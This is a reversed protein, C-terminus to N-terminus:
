EGAGINRFASWDPIPRSLLWSSAVALIPLALVAGAIELTPVALPSGRSAFIGWIPLLGAPVALIGALLALVGARAAAIRRRLRPDAGLALLSRQEPRSEAEGLAIAIGTVSVAFLLVLAIIVMRFGAGPREPASLTAAMTDPYIAAVQRVRELDVETVPHDFQLVYSTAGYNLDDSSPVLGLERITAEPLFAQPLTGGPVAVVLVRVPLTLTETVESMEPDAGVTITMTSASLPTHSLVVARGQAIDDAASEAHALALLEPTAAAVPGVYYPIVFGPECNGDAICQEALNITRGDGDRADLLEYAMSVNMDPPVLYDLPAGGLVGAEHLLEEGAAVAGTGAILLQDPYLAPTWGALSEADRSTTWAGVAIAAALGALIATVIPSSRSRARATDRFAIRGPLPLRAALRELRELLWPGCAGFGLTSLVAGGVLLLVSVPDLGANRMTAGGVTMAAALGVAALGLRLTRKAPLHPPRRGSLALLVPVRAVTRAPVIAAIMAALFGIVVPGSLGGLDVVLPPNRRQTLVDLWPTLAFAGVLGVVVGAVGAIVGLIAAEAVVTGALQRPTAGAAALLGLERQRRRVSVAFAASAILAAEVLALAGLILITGTTSDGGMVTIRGSARSQILVEQAGTEPDITADVIAQPDAGAPLDILWSAFQQPGLSVAHPDFLVIRDELYMPNEVIGVLSATPGDDIALQGGISVGALEAVAESVSTAREPRCDVTSSRGCAPRLGM